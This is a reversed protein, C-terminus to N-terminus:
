RLKPLVDRQISEAVIANHFRVHQYAVVMVSIYFFNPEFNGGHQRYSNVLADLYDFGYEFPMAAYALDFMPMGTYGAPDIIGVLEHTQSNVLVNNLNLDTHILHGDSFDLYDSM